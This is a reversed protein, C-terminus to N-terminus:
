NLSDPTTWIRRLNKTSYLSMCFAKLPSATCLLAFFGLLTNTYFRKVWICRATQFILFQMLLSDKLINMFFGFCYVGISVSHKRTKYFRWAPCSHGHHLLRRWVYSSKKDPMTRHGTSINLSSTLFTIRSYDRKM